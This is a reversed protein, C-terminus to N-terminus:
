YGQVAKYELTNWSDTDLLSHVGYESGYPLAVMMPKVRVSTDITYYTLAKAMQFGTGTYQEIDKNKSMNVQVVDSTRLYLNDKIAITELFVALSLYDSYSLVLSDGATVKPKGAAFLDGKSEQNSVLTELEEEGITLDVFLEDEDANKILKVPLGALLYQEDVYSELALITTCILFKTLQIPIVGASLACALEAISEVWLEDWYSTYIPGMNFGLRCFYLITDVRARNKENSSGSLIYEVENGYAWNYGVGKDDSMPAIVKNTMSKNYVDTTKLSQMYKTAEEADFIKSATGPQIYMDAGSWDKVQYINTDSDQVGAAKDYVKEMFHTDYSLMSMLYDTTYLDDRMGEYMNAITSLWKAASTIGATQKTADKSNKEGGSIMPSEDAAAKALASPLDKENMIENADVRHINKYTEFDALGSNFLEKLFDLFGSAKAVPSDCEGYTDDFQWHLFQPIKIKTKTDTIPYSDAQASCPSNLTASNVFGESDTSFDLNLEKLTAIADGNYDWTDEGYKKLKDKGVPVQDKDVKTGATAESTAAAEFNKLTNIGKKMLSRKSTIDNGLIEKGHYTLKEAVDMYSVFLEGVRKIYNVYIECDDKTLDVEKDHERDPKSGSGVKDTQNYGSRDANSDKYIDSNEETLGHKKGDEVADGWDDYAQKYDAIDDKLKKMEKRLTDNTYDNGILENGDFIREFREKLKDKDLNSDGYTESKETNQVKEKIFKDAADRNVDGITQDYFKQATASVTGVKAAKATNLAGNAKDVADKVHDSLKRGDEMITDAIDKPDEKDSKHRNTYGTNLNELAKKVDKVSNIYTKYDSESLDQELQVWYRAPSVKDEAMDLYKEECHEIAGLKENIPGLQKDHETVASDINGMLTVITELSVDTGSFDATTETINTDVSKFPESWLHDVNTWYELYHKHIDDFDTELNEYCTKTDKIYGATIKLKEYKKLVEYVKLAQMLMDSKAEYFVQKKEQILAEYPMNTASEGVKSVKTFLDSYKQKDNKVDAILDIPARYKMFETIQQRMMGPNALNANEVNAIEASTQDTDVGIVDDYEKSKGFLKSIETIKQQLYTPSVETSQMSLVFANEAPEYIEDIDQVSGMLGYYQELDIDYQSLVTNLALDVSSTAISKALFVRSVDIYLTCIVIMPVLLITLFITVGGRQRKRFWTM